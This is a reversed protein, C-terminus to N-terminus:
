MLFSTISRGEGLALVIIQSFISKIKKKIKHNGNEPRYTNEHKERFRKKKV